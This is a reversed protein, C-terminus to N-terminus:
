RKYVGACVLVDGAKECYAAKPLVKKTVPDSWKYDTWAKGKALTSQAIEKVFQKGDADELDILNKGVLKDNAGHALVIAQVDWVWPYLDGHVWKPDKATVEKLAEAKNAAVAKILKAVLAEAEKPTAFDAAVASLAIGAFAVLTIATKKM